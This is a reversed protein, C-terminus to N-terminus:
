ETAEITVTFTSAPAVTDPASPQRYELSLHSTGAAEVDFKWTDTGGSGPIVPATPEYTMQGVQEIVPTGDEVIAWAFGTSGNAALSVVM